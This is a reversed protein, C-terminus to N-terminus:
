IIKNMRHIASILHIVIIVKRPTFNHRICIGIGNNKGKPVLDQFNTALNTLSSHKMM